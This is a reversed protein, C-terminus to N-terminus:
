EVAAGTDVQALDPSPPATIQVGERNGTFDGAVLMLSLIYSLKPLGTRSVPLLSISGQLFHITPSNEDPIYFGNCFESEITGKRDEPLPEIYSKSVYDIKLISDVLLGTHMEGHKLYIIKEGDDPNADDYDFYSKMDFITLVRGHYNLILNIYKPVLPVTRIKKPELVSVVDQIDLGFVKDGIQSFVILLEDGLLFKKM